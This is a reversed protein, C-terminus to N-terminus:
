DASSPLIGSDYLYQTLYMALKEICSTISHLSHLMARSHTASVALCLFGSAYGEMCVYKWILM